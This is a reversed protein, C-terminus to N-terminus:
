RSEWEPDCPLDADSDSSDESDTESGGWYATGNSAYASAYNHPANTPRPPNPDSESSEDSESSSQSSPTDTGDKVVRWLMSRHGDDGKEEFRMGDITNGKMGRIRNGIVRGTAPKGDRGFHLLANRLTSYKPANVPLGVLEVAKAATM